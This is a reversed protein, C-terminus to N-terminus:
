FKMEMKITSREYKSNHNETLVFGLKKYLRMAANLKVNTELFLVDAKKQKALRIIEEALKKGIQRGQAKHTVAMKALEYEGGSASILAATGVIENKYKAFIIEGGKEIIEEQPNNLLKEDEPEVNFYKELWEYNLTKFLEKYENSYMILEVSGIQKEKIKESVRSFMDKDDLSNEVKNIVFMLDFGTEKFVDKIADEFGQWVPKLEDLLELGKPSLALLKKRTDSRDKVVKVLGKKILVNAIQTVAPQTYGLETTIESISLPSKQSLLSFMTFWRPEFEINQAQYIKAGDQMFRDTLLRLRTGFAVEGLQKIFEM